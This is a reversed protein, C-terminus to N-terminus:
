FVKRPKKAVTALILACNPFFIKDPLNQQTNKAKPRSRPQSSSSHKRGCDTNTISLRTAQPWHCLRLQASGFPSSIAPLGRRFLSTPTLLASKQSFFIGSILVRRSVLGSFVALFCVLNKGGPPGYKDKQNVISTSRKHQSINVLILCFLPKLKDPVIMSKCSINLFTLWFSNSKM